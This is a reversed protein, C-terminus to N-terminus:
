PGGASMLRELVQGWLRETTWWIVWGGCVILIALILWSYISAAIPDYALVCVPLLMMLYYPGTYRCHTRGCRRVNLICASGMWPLAVTWVAFRLPLAAFLTAIITGKPLWWALLNTHTTGVWDATPKAVDKM